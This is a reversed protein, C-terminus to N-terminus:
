RSNLKPGQGLKISSNRLRLAPRGGLKGPRRSAAVKKRSRSRGGPKDSTVPWGVVLALFARFCPPFIFTAM